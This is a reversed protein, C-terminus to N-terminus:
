AGRRTGGAARHSAEEATELREVVALVPEAPKETVTREVHRISAAALQWVDDARAPFVPNWCGTGEWPQTDGAGDAIDRRLWPSVLEQFRAHPFSRAHASFSYLRRTGLGISLSIFTRNGPWPFRALSDLVTDEGTCDLVVDCALVKECATQDRPPFREEFAEVRVDTLLSNLRTAVAKAKSQGVDALTLTHRVLNGVALLEDDLITVCRVGARVLLEAVASGLAGAGILLVHAQRMHQGLKGRTSIEEFHWNQTPLWEIVADDRFSHRRDRVWFGLRNPRFGRPVGDRSLPPLAAVQWHLQSTADGFLKPIRFGLAFLHRQGDRMRNLLASLVEDLRFGRTGLVRRLEGWTLPAQWPPLVPVGDAVVWLGQSKLDYFRDQPWSSPSVVAGGSNRFSGLLHVRENGPLAGIDMFGFPKKVLDIWKSDGPSAQFAVIEGKTNTIFKPLEFPEGPLMLENRAAAELWLLARRVHWRLRADPTYPERDYGVRGFVKAPTRLCLDGERWRFISDHWGNYDQHPFTVTIGNEVAPYIELKGWPYREEAHVYWETTRPVDASGDGSLTLRLPLIFVGAEHHWAWEGLVSCGEVGDLVRAATLLQDSPDNM